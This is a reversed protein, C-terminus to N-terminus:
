NGALQWNGGVRKIWLHFSYYMGKSGLWLANGCRLHCTSM